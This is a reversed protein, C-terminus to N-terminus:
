QGMGIRAATSQPLDAPSSSQSATGVNLLEDLDENQINLRTAPRRLMPGGKSSTQCSATKKKVPASAGPSVHQNLPVFKMLGRRPFSKPLRRCHPFPISPSRNIAHLSKRNIDQVRQELATRHVCASDAVHSCRAACPSVSRVSVQPPREYQAPPWHPSFRFRPPLPPVDEKAASEAPPKCPGPLFADIQALRQV